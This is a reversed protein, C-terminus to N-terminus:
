YNKWDFLQFKPMRKFGFSQRDIFFERGEKRLRREHRRIRDQYNVDLYKRM